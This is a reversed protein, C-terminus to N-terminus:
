LTNTCLQTLFHLLELTYVTPLYPLLLISSLHISSIFSHSCLIIILLLTYLPPAATVCAQRGHERAQSDHVCCCHYIFNDIYVYVYVYIHTHIEVHLPARENHIKSAKESVKDKAQSLEGESTFTTQYLWPQCMGAILSFTHTRQSSCLIPVALPRCYLYCPCHKYASYIFFDSEFFLPSSTLALM